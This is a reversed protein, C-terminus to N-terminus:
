GCPIINRPDAQALNPVFTLAFLGTVILSSLLQGMGALSDHARSSCLRGGGPFTRTTAPCRGRAEESALKSKFRSFLITIGQLACHQQPIFGDQTMELEHAVLNRVPLAMGEVHWCYGCQSPEVEM